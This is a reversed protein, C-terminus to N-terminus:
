SPSCLGSGPCEPWQFKWVEMLVRAGGQKRGSGAVWFLTWLPGLPILLTLATTGAWADSLAVWSPCPEQSRSDRAGPDQAPPASLSHSGDTDLGTM